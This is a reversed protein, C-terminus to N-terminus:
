DINYKSSLCLGQKAEVTNGTKQVQWFTNHTGPKAKIDSTMISFCIPSFNLQKLVSCPAQKLVANDLLCYIYNFKPDDKQSRISTIINWNLYSSYALITGFETFFSVIHGIDFKSSM